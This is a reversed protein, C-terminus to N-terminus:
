ILSLSMPSRLVGIVGQFEKSCLLMGQYRAHKSADKYRSCIEMVLVGFCMNAHGLMVYCDGLIHQCGKYDRAHGLVGQCANVDM